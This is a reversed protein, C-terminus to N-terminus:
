KGILFLMESNEVRKNESPGAVIFTFMYRLVIERISSTFITLILQFVSM